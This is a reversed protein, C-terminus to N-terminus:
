EKRFIIHERRAIIKRLKGGDQVNVVYARGRKEIITGIKGHYRRHPQGKAQSPELLIMVKDGQNFSQLLSSTRLMGDRKRKRLLSRTRSRYGLSRRM